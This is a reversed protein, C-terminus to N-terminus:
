PHLMQKRFSLLSLSSSFSGFLDPGSYQAFSEYLSRILINMIQILIIMLSQTMVYSFLLIVDIVEPFKVRPMNPKM